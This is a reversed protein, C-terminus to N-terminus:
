CGALLRGARLVSRGERLLPPDADPLVEGAPAAPVGVEPSPSPFM